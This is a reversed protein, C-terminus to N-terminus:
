RRSQDTWKMFGRANGDMMDSLKDSYGHEAAHRRWFELLEPWTASNDDTGWLLKDWRVIEILRGMFRFAEVGHGPALDAWVNPYYRILCLTQEYGPNGGMHCCIFRLSPFTSAPLEIAFPQSFRASMPTNRVNSPALYGLHFAVFIGREALAAYVPFFEAADPYFGLSPFMKAGSFGQDAYKCVKELCTSLGERLDLHMAGMLREPHRRIARAVDENDGTYSWVNTPCAYVLTREIGFADMARVLNDGHPDDPLWIHNHFDIM